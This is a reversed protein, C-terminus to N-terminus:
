DRPTDSGGETTGEDESALRDVFGKTSEVKKHIKDSHKGHTKEDVFGATKDIAGDLKEEHKSVLKKAKNFIGM